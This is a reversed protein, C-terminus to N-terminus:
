GLSSGVYLLSIKVTKNNFKMGTQNNYTKPGKNVAFLLKLTIIGLKSKALKIFIIM